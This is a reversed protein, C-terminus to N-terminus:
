PNLTYDTEWIAPVPATIRTNLHRRLELDLTFRQVDEGADVPLRGLVQTEGVILEADDGELLDGRGVMCHRWIAEGLHNVLQTKDYDITAGKAGSPLDRAHLTLRFIVRGRSRVLDAYLKEKYDVEFATADDPYTPGDFSIADLNVGLESLNLLSVENLPIVTNPTGGVTARVEDISSADRRDLLYKTTGAVFGHSEAVVDQLATENGGFRTIEFPPGSIFAFTGYPYAESGTSPPDSDHWDLPTIVDGNPMKASKPLFRHLARPIDITPTESPM